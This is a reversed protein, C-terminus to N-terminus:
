KQLDIYMSIAPHTLDMDKGRLSSCFSGQFRSKDIRTFEITKGIKSIREYDWNNIHLGSKKDNYKLGDRLEEMLESYKYDLINKSLGFNDLSGKPDAIENVFCLAADSKTKYLEHFSFYEPHNLLQFYLYEADPCAIRLVGGQKLGRYSESIFKVVHETEIHEIVHSCYITDLSSDKFPLDENRMDYHVRDFSKLKYYSDSYYDVSIFGDIEYEGCGVNINKKGNRAGLNLKYTILKFGFYKLLKKLQLKIFYFFNKPNFKKLFQNIM